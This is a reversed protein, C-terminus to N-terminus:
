KIGSSPLRVILLFNVSLFAGKTWGSEKQQNIYFNPKAFEPYTLAGFFIAPFDSYELANM